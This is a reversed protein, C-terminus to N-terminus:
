TMSRPLGSKAVARAGVSRQLKAVFPNDRSADILILRLRKVSQLAWIIRDLAVAQDEVDSDRALKADVPILYNTGAVEIRHGAYYVVAIDATEATILFDRIARKFDVVGLDTRSSVVEFGVSRFLAAIANADNITNPLSTANKYASNGIVFAVRREAAQVPLAAVRDAVDPPAPRTLSRTQLAPPPGGVDMKHLVEDRIPGVIILAAVAICASGIAVMAMRNPFIVSGILKVISRVWPSEKAAVQWRESSAFTWSQKGRAEHVQQQEALNIIEALGARYNIGLEQLHTTVETLPMCEVDEDDPDDLVSLLYAAPSPASRMIASQLETPISSPLGQEELRGKIDALPLSEIKALEIKETANDRYSKTVSLTGKSLANETRM